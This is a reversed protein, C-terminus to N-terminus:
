LRWLEIRAPKAGRDLKSKVDFVIGEGGELLRTVFPWGGMVYEEHAVALIVARAPSLERLDTLAIGYEEMAEDARALPDHVLVNIGSSQLENVIDPVKSNRIDPVNEKFALGLVIVSASVAGRRLLRRACERAIREGVNDNIRRGALIVEPHYGAKEARHTLYYPDVGICHGGVLGPYFPVFNWKTKAADIVDTTDIDLRQCIASLENM